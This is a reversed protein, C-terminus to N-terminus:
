IEKVSKAPCNVSSRSVAYRLFCDLQWMFQNGSGLEELQKCFGSLKEAGINAMSSKLAHAAQEIQNMYQPMLSLYTSVVRDHHLLGLTLFGRLIRIDLKM